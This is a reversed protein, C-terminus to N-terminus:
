RGHTHELSLECMKWFEPWASSKQSGGCVRGTSGVELSGARCHVHERSVPWRGECTRPKGVPDQWGSAPSEAGPGVAAGVPGVKGVVPEPCRGHTQRGLVSQAGGFPGGSVGAVAGWGQGAQLVTPCFGTVSNPARAGTLAVHDWLSGRELPPLGLHSAPVPDLHAFCLPSPTLGLGRGM